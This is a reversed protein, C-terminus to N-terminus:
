CSQAVVERFGIAGDGELVDDVVPLVAVIYLCAIKGTLDWTDILKLEMAGDVFQRGTHIQHLVSFAENVREGGPLVAVDCGAATNVNLKLLSVSNPQDGLRALVTQCLLAVERPVQQKNLLFSVVLLM